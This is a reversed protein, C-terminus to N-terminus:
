WSRDFITVDGHKPLNRWFRWLYPHAREEDTPAAFGIVQPVPSAVVRTICQARSLQGVRYVRADMASVLRRIAGGKGAADPGQHRSRSASARGHGTKDCRM